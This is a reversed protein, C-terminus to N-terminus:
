DTHILTNGHDSGSGPLVEDTGSGMLASVEANIRSESMPSGGPFNEM